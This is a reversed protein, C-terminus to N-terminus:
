AAQMSRAGRQCILVVTANRDAVHDAPEAELTAKAVGCAGEAMGGAREHEERVDIFLAGQALLGVVEAPVIERISM